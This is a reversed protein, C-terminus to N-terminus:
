SFSSYYSCQVLKVNSGSKLAWTQNKETNKCLVKQKCLDLEEASVKQNRSPVKVLEKALLFHYGKRKMVTLLAEKPWKVLYFRTERRRLGGKETRLCM